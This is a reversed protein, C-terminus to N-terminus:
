RCADEEAARLTGQSKEPGHDPPIAQPQCFHTAATSAPTTRSSCQTRSQAPRADCFLLPLGTDFVYLKDNPGPCKKLQFEVIESLISFAYTVCPRTKKGNRESVKAPIM